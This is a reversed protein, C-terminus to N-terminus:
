LIDTQSDRWLVSNISKQVFGKETVLYILKKQPCYIIGYEDFRNWLVRDKIIISCVGDSVYKYVYEIDKSYTHSFFIEGNYKHVIDEKNEYIVRDKKIDFFTDKHSIHM